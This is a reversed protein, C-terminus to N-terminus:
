SQTMLTGHSTDFESDWSRTALGLQDAARYAARALIGTYTPFSLPVRALEEVRLGGSMAIAVVQVIEVARDGVVHCGLIAHTARDVLLKCFGATRGDIITRATEEFRVIAAVVDHTERAAAETPGVRAYEPETFGGIPSVGEPLKLTDGCVANTASVWGDHIAQPVLMWRGTIDGAAYVHPASTRLCSDVAVYGRGDTEVGAAALNLGGTDAVWGIATVALAAEVSDQAGDRSFVMRVGALTKEFSEITGFSERVTMGSERFASVVAASVDADETPLIRPGAHFLFVHSGFAHFISAVQVGTMGAGIVILSEPVQTLGWADSHTATWQAGPVSLRRSTGPSM